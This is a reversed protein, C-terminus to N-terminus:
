DDQLSAIEKAKELFLKVAKESARMKNVAETIEASITELADMENRIATGKEHILGSGEQVDRSAERVTALIDMVQSGEAASVEVAKDVEGFSAGMDKVGSFITGMSDVTTRSANGVQEMVLEMKKIEESISESEKVSLEALKRVEGAVVAFGKGSEGARAAEIAANMALITTQGAIDAITANAAMLAASREEIHVLDDALKRLMRHGTESSKMLTEATKKTESAILRVSDVNSVMNEVAKSSETISGAQAQVTDRFSNLQGFIGHASGSAGQMSQRQSRVCTEMADIHRSIDEMAGFSEVVVRNLRRNKEETKALHQRNIRDMEQRLGSESEVMSYFLRLRRKSALGTITSTILIGFIRFGEYFLPFEVPLMEGEYVFYHPLGLVHSNAAVVILYTASAYIGSFYACRASYRCMGAMILIPYFLARFSLFPLPPSITPYTCSVWIIVSIFTMDVTTCVYKFWDQLRETKRVYVFLYVSYLLLLGTTVHARWPIWEDGQMYRIVAVGTTSVTFIVGMILRVNSILKEGGHEDIRIREGVDTATM